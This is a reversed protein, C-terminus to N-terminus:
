GKVLRTQDSDEEKRGIIKLHTEYMTEGAFIGRKFILAKLFIFVM